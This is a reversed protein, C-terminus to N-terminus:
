GPDPLSPDRSLEFRIQTIRRQMRVRGKETESGDILAALAAYTWDHWERLRLLIRDAEPLANIAHAMLEQQERRACISSPGPSEDPPAVEAEIPQEKRFDRM